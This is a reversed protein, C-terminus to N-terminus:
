WMFGHFSLALKSMVRQESMQVDEAIADENTHVCVCLPVYTTVCVLKREKATMSEFMKNLRYSYVECKLLIIFSEVPLTCYSRLCVSSVHCSLCETKELCTEGWIQFMYRTYKYASM